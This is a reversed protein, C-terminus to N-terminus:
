GPSYPNPVMSILGHMAKGLDPLIKNLQPATKPIQPFIDYKQDFYFKDLKMAQQTQIIWIELFPKTNQMTLMHLNMHISQSAVNDTRWAHGSRSARDSDRIDLHYNPDRLGGYFNMRAIVGHVGIYQIAVGAHQGAILDVKDERQFVRPAVDIHDLGEDIFGCVTGEANYLAEVTAQLEQDKPNKKADLIVPTALAGFMDAYKNIFLISSERKAQEIQAESIESMPITICIIDFTVMKRYMKM